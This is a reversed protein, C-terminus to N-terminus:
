RRRSVWLPTRPRGADSAAAHVPTDVTLPDVRRRLHVISADLEDKVGGLPLVNLVGQGAQLVDILEEGSRVLVSTTGRIVLNASAVDSGLQDRLYGFVQRVQELKIGADLLSKIVKLELLDRYSYQRRSGSGAADTLSPRVLDTRAWYDLQRYSIGVIEAARRGSFGQLDTM